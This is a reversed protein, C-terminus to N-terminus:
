PCDACTAVCVASRTDATGPSSSGVQIHCGVSLLTGDGGDDPRRGCGEVCASGDPTTVKCDQYVVVDTTAVECTMPSEGPAPGCGVLSVAAGLLAVAFIGTRTM